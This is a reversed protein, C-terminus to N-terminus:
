TNPTINSNNNTSTASPQHTKSCPELSQSLKNFQSAAGHQEKNV